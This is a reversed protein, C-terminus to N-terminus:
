IKVMRYVGPQPVYGLKRNIALMPANQSDNDTRISAGNHQKAYAITILKLALAIKRGRYAPMVGTMLNYFYNNEVNHSIAALGVFQDGDAALFQSKPNFWVSESVMKHFAEFDPFTGTTSPDDMYTAYNVEWLKRLNDRTNGVDALSFFRIGSAEVQEIIGEFPQGDFSDLDITSEFLHREVKFGRKEAFRIADPENDFVNTQLEQAGKSAAFTAAADYLQGGFGKNRQDPHTWVKVMIRGANMTNTNFISGFGIIGNNAEAIIQHRIQGDQLPKQSDKILHAPNIYEHEAISLIAAIGEFDHESSVLRIIVTM